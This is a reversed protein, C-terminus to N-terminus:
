MAWTQLFCERPATLGTVVPELKPHEWHASQQRDDYQHPEKLGSIALVTELGHSGKALIIRSSFVGGLFCRRPQGSRSKSHRAPFM